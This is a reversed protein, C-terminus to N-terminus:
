ITPSKAVKVEELMEATFVEEGERGVFIPQHAVMRTYQVSADEAATTHGAVTLLLPAESNRAEALRNEQPNFEHFAFNPRIVFGGEERLIPAMYNFKAYATDDAPERMSEM